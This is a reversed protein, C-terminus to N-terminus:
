LKVFYKEPIRTFSATFLYKSAQNDTRQLKSQAGYFHYKFVKVEYLSPIIGSITSLLTKLIASQSIM